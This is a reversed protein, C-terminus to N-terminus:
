PLAMASVKGKNAVFCSATSHALIKGSTGGVVVIKKGVLKDRSNPMIAAQFSFQILEIDLM